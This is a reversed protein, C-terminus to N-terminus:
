RGGGRQSRAATTSPAEGLQPLGDDLREWRVKHEVLFHGREGWSADKTLPWDEPHDLSGILIWVSPNGEYRFAIPSGCTECFGRRGFDSSHFYRPSGRTFRFGTGSFKVAAQYLGGYSIQCM